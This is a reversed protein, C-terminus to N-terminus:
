ESTVGSGGITPYGQFQKSSSIERAPNEIRGVVTEDFFYSISQSIFENFNSASFNIGVDVNSMSVAGEISNWDLSGTKYMYINSSAYYDVYPVSGTSSLNATLFACDSVTEIVGNADIQISIQASGTWPDPSHTRVGYWESEGDFTNDGIGDDDTTYITKGVAFTNITAVGNHLIYYLEGEGDTYWETDSICALVDNNYGGGELRNFQFPQTTIPM